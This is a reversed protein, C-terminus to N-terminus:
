GSRRAARKLARAAVAVSIRGDCLWPETWRSPDLAPLGGVPEVFPASELAETLVSPCLLRDTWGPSRGFGPQWPDLERGIGRLVLWGGEVAISGGVAAYGEAHSDLIRRSWDPAPRCGPALFAAAEADGKTLVHEEQLALAAQTEAVLEPPGEGVRVALSRASVRSKVDVELEVPENGLEAFWARGDAVLDLSLRYRGPPIPAEVPFRLTTSEGPAVPEPLPTFIGAWVIANGRLDLWHYSVNIAGDTNGHWAVRGANEVEATILSRAGARQEPVEHRLWRVALPGAPVSTSV